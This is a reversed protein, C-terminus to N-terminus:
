RPQYTPDSSDRRGVIFTRANEAESIPRQESWDLIVVREAIRWEGNQREFRDRYRGVYVIVDGHPQSGARQYCHATVYTEAQALNGGQFDILINSVGHWMATYMNHALLNDVFTEAPGDLAGHRDLAGPHYSSRMLHEDVRDMGRCLRHIVDRIQERDILEQVDM